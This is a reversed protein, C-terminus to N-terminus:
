RGHRKRYRQVEPSNNGYRDRIKRLGNLYAEDSGAKGGGPPTFPSSPPSPTQSGPIPERALLRDIASAGTSSIIGSREDEAQRLQQLFGSQAQEYEQQATLRDRAAQDRINQDAKLHLGSFFTNNANQALGSQEIGQGEQRLITALASNPNQVAPGLEGGWSQNLSTIAEPSGYRLAAEYLGQGIGARATGYASQARNRADQEQMSLPVGTDVPAPAAPPAPAAAPASPKKALPLHTVPRGGTPQKPKITTPPLAAGGSRKLRRVAM